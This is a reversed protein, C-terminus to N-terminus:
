KASVICVCENDPDYDYFMRDDGELSYCHKDWSYLEPMADRNELTYMSKLFNWCRLIDQEAMDNSVASEEVREFNEISNKKLDLQKM